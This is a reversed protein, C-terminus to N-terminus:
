LIRNMLFSRHLFAHGVHCLPMSSNCTSASLSQPM